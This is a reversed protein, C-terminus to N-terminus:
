GSNACSECTLPLTRWLVKKVESVLWVNMGPIGLGSMIRMLQRCNPPQWSGRLNLLESSCSM